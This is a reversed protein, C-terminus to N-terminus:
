KTKSSSDIGDTEGKEDQAAQGSQGAEVNGDRNQGLVGTALAFIELAGRNRRRQAQIGEHTVPQLLAPDQVVDRKAGQKLTSRKLKVGGHKQEHNVAAHHGALRNANWLGLGPSQM